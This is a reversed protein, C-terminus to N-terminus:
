PETARLGQPGVKEYYKNLVAIQAHVWASPVNGNNVSTGSRCHLGSCCLSQSLFSDFSRIAWAMPTFPLVSVYAGAQPLAPCGTCPQTALTSEFPPDFRGQAGQM